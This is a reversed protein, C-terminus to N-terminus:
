AGGDARVVVVVHIFSHIVWGVRVGARGCDSSVGVDTARDVRCVCLTTACAVGGDMWGDTWGDTFRKEDTMHTHNQIKTPVNETQCGDVM